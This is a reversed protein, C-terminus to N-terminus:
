IVEDTDDYDDFQCISKCGSTLLEVDGFLVDTLSNCRAMAQSLTLATGGIVSKGNVDDHRYGNVLSTVDDEDCAGSEDEEESIGASLWRDEWSVVSVLWWLYRFTGCRFGTLLGSSVVSPHVLICINKQISYQGRIYIFIRQGGSAALM